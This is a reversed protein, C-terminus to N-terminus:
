NDDKMEEAEEKCNWPASMAFVVSGDSLLQQISVDDDNFKLVVGKCGLNRFHISLLDMCIRVTNNDVSLGAKVEVNVEGIVTKRETM